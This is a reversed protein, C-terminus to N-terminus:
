DFIPELNSSTAQANAFNTFDYIVGAAFKYEDSGPHNTLLEMGAKAMNLMIATSEHLCSGIQECKAALYDVQDAIDYIGLGLLHDQWGQKTRILATDKSNNTEPHLSTDDAKTDNEM